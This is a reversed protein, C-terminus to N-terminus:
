SKRVNTGSKRVDRANQGDRVAEGGGLHADCEVKECMREVKECMGRMKGMGCRNLGRILNSFTM